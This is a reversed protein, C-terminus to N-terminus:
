PIRMVNIHSQARTPERNQYVFASLVSTFFIFLSLIARVGLAVAVPWDGHPRGLTFDQASFMRAISQDILDFYYLGASPGFHHGRRLHVVM